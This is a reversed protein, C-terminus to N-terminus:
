KVLMVDNSLVTEDGIVLQFVYKTAYNATFYYCNATADWEAEGAYAYEGEILGYAKVTLEAGNAIVGDDLLDIYAVDNGKKSIGAEITYEAADDEVNAVKSNHKVVWIHTAVEGKNENNKVYVITDGKVVKEIEVGDETMDFVKVGDAYTVNVENVNKGEVTFYKGNSATSIVKTGSWDKTLVNAMEVIKNNELAITYVGVPLEENVVTNVGGGVIMATDFTYYQMEGDMYVPIYTKKGRVEFEDGNYYAYLDKDILNGDIVYVTEVTRGKYIVLANVTEDIKINKYGELTEVAKDTVLHMVSENDLVLNKADDGFVFQQKGEAKVAGPLVELENAKTESLAKLVIEGDETMTYGYFGFAVTETNKVERWDGNADLYETVRANGSGTRKTQLELVEYGTGDLWMVEVLAKDNAILGGVEFESDTVLVYGDLKETSAVPKLAIMYGYEDLMMVMEADDYKPEYAKAYEADHETKQVLHESHNYKTGDMKTYTSKAGHADLVGNVEEVTAITQIEKDAITVLVFQDDVLDMDTEVVQEDVTKHGFVNLTVEEDLIDEVQALYTDIKVLTVNMDEDVYAEILVGNGGIKTSDNKKVQFSDKEGNDWVTAKTAKDLDLDSFITSSKVAATYVAAPAEHYMGAIKKAGKYWNYCERGFVDTADKTTLDYLKYGLTEKEDFDAEDKSNFVNGVYYDDADASYTVEMVKTLTNFVYLMAEERLAPAAFVVDLNGDFVGLKTAMSNVESDWSAGTFEGNQGYGVACLLMKAFQSATVNAEPAFTGDGMGGVIGQDACYEIYGASWLYTPVDTFPAVEAQLADAAKKGLMTYAILKAAQGRTLNGAPVLEDGIGEVIGLATLVDVAEVYTIEEVDAYDEVNAAAATLSLAMIMALVFALNRKLIRM